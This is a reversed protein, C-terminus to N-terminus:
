HNDDVWVSSSGSASLYIFIHVALFFFNRTLESQGSLAYAGCRTHFVDVANISSLIGFSHSIDYESTLCRIADQHMLTSRSSCIMNRCTIVTYHPCITNSPSADRHRWVNIVSKYQVQTKGQPNISMPCSQIFISAAILLYWKSCLLLQEDYAAVFLTFPETHYFRM